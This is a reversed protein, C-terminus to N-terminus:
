PAPEAPTEPEVAQEAKSHSGLKITSGPNRAEALAMQEKVQKELKANYYRIAFPRFERRFATFEEGIERIAEKTFKKNEDLMDWIMGPRVKMRFLRQKDTDKYWVGHALLNRKESLNKIV